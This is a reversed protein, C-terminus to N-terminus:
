FSKLNKSAAMYVSQNIPLTIPSGAAVRKSTWPVSLKIPVRSVLWITVQSARSIPRLVVWLKRFGTILFMGSVM